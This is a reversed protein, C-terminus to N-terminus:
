HAACLHAPQHINPRHTYAVACLKNILQPRRVCLTSSHYLVFSRFLSFLVMHFGCLSYHPVPLFVIFFYSFSHACECVSVRLSHSLCVSDFTYTHTPAKIIAATLCDFSRVFSLIFSVVFFLRIFSCTNRRIFEAHFVCLQGCYRTHIANSAYTQTQTCLVDALLISTPCWHIQKVSQICYMFLVSLHACCAHSCTTTIGTGFAASICQFLKQM